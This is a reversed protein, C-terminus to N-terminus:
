GIKKIKEVKKIENWINDLETLTCDTMQRNSDLVKDEVKKFRNYFKQNAEYLAIEPDIEYFRFLNVISFLVDGAEEKIHEPSKAEFFEQIEEHVKAICDDVSEWDFGCKRAIKQMKESYLLSPLNKPIRSMADANSSYKKEKKKAEMWFNLAQSSNEAHNDGFIHTHRDVLKRCLTTIMDYYDFAGDEKAIQTHFIAQLLVDGTEEILMDRDDLDIAELLEYAEEILNIRISKHTQAKDWECGNPSRLKDMIEMLESFDFRTNKELTIPEILLTNFKNFDIDQMSSLSCCIEEDYDSIAFVQVDGFINLIKNKLSQISSNDIDRILNFVRKNINVESQLFDSAIYNSYSKSKIETLKTM